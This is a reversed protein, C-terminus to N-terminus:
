EQGDSTIEYFEDCCLNTYTKKDHTKFAELAAREHQRIVEKIAARDQQAFAIIPLALAVLAVTLIRTKM